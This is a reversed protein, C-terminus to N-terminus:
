RFHKADQRPAVLNEVPQKAGVEDAKVRERVHAVEHRRKQVDVTDLRIDIAHTGAIALDLQAHEGHPNVGRREGIKRRIRVHQCAHFGDPAIGAPPANHKADIPQVVGLANWPPELRDLTQKLAVRIEPVAHSVNLDGHGRAPLHVRIPSESPM